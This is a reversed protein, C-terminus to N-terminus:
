GQPQSRQKEGLVTKIRAIDRRLEQFRKVNDLQQGSSAQIRLNFLGQTAERLEHELEETTLERLERARM